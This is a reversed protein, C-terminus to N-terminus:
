PEGRATRDFLTQLHSAREQIIAVRCLPYHVAVGDSGFDERHAFYTCSANLYAEWAAQERDLMQVVAESKGRKAHMLADALEAKAAGIYVEGCWGLAITSQARESCAHYGARQGANAAEQAPSRFSNGTALALLAISLSSLM